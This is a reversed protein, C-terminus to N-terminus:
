YRILYDEAIPRLNQNVLDESDVLRSMLYYAGALEEEFRGFQGISTSRSIALTLNVTFSPFLNLMRLYAPMPAHTIDIEHGPQGRLAVYKGSQWTEDYQEHTKFRPLDRLRRIDDAEVPVGSGLESLPMQNSRDDLKLLHFRKVFPLYKGTLINSTHELPLLNSVRNHIIFDQKDSTMEHLLQNVQETSNPGYVIALAENLINIQSYKRAVNLNYNYSIFYAPDNPISDFRYRELRESM